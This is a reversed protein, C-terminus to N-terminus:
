LNTLQKMGTPLTLNTLAGFEFRLKVLNTMGPPVVFESFRNEGLDLSVLRTLNTLIIANTIQNDQLDLSVLNVATELGQVNTIGQFVAGFNTLGLMDQQTVPGAPKGLVQRVAANLKPDPISVEQAWSWSTISILFLLILVFPRSISVITNM